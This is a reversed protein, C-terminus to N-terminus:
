GPFVQQAEPVVGQGRAQGHSGGRKFMRHRDDDNLNSPLHRDNDFNRSAPVAAVSQFLQFRLHARRADHLGVGLQDFQQAVRAPVRPLSVQAAKPRAEAARPRIVM